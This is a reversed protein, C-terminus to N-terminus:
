SDKQFFKLKESNYKFYASLKLDVLDCYNFIQVLEMKLSFRPLKLVVFLVFSNNKSVSMMLLQYFNLAVSQIQSPNLLFIFSLFHTLSFSFLRHFLLISFTFVLLFAYLLFLLIRLSVLLTLFDFALLVFLLSFSLYLPNVSM